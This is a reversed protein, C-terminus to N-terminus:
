ARSSPTGSSTASSPAGQAARRAELPLLDLRAGILARLSQPIVAAAPRESAIAALEEVFLPNGEAREAAAEDLYLSVALRRAEAPSLPGLELTHAGKSAIVGALQERLEPRGQCVFVLPVPATTEVLEQVLELLNESAWHLDDLVIVTPAECALAELYRRVAWLLEAGSAVPSRAAGVLPALQAELVAIEPPPHRRVLRERLKLTSAEESDRGAIGADMQAVQALALWATGEGYPLCAGRLVLARGTVRATFEEALRSKGIGPEGLVVVVRTGESRIADEVVAALMQLEDGRGVLDSRARTRRPAEAEAPWAELPESKGRAEVPRSSGYEIAGRTLQRTERAVLVEHPAAAQQLRAATNMVDGTALADEGGSVLAEGTALGIRVDLEVGLRPRLSDNPGELANRM